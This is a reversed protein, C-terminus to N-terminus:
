LDISKNMKVASYSGTRFYYADTVQVQPKAEHLQNEMKDSWISCVKRALMHSKPLANSEIPFTEQNHRLVRLLPLISPFSFRM